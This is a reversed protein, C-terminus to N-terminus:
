EPRSFDIKHNSPFLIIYIKIESIYMGYARYLTSIAIFFPQSVGFICVCVCVCIYIYIYIYIYVYKCVYVPHYHRFCCIVQWSYLVQNWKTSISSSFRHFLSCLLEKILSNDYLRTRFSFISKCLLVGFPDINNVYIASISVGRRVGFLKRYINNYAV